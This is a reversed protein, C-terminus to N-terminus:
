MPPRPGRWFRRSPASLARGSRRWIPSSPTVTAASATPASAGPLKSPETSSRWTRRKLRMPSPCRMILSAINTVVLGRQRVATVAAALETDTLATVPKGWLSFPEVASIGWATARDLAYTFDDAITDIVIGLAVM